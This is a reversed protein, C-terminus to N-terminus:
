TQFGSSAVIRLFATPLIYVSLCLVFRFVSYLVSSLICSPLFLVLHCTSYTSSATLPIRSHIDAEVALDQTRLIPVRNKTRICRVPEFAYRIDADRRFSM